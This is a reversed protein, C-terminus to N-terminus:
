SALISTIQARPDASPLSDDFVVSFTLMLSERISMVVCVCACTIFVCMYVHVYVVFVCWFIM